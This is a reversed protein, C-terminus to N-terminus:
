GILRRLNSQYQNPDLVAKDVELPRGVIIGAHSRFSNLYGSVSKDIVVKRYNRSAHMFRAVKDNTRITIGVHSCFGGHGGTVIGIIDGDQLKPEIKSVQSKPIYHVPLRAVYDEWKKMPARLEPNERLYRYHKWLVTMESIKRGTIRQAYGLERTIDTANGRAENEFFWEALYHIRDLYCSSCNGGRYRTWQIERLLDEQSYQARPRMIMRSLGLTTEFFTWCDLGEFNVSPSEIHDDIELTYNVYPTGHLERAFLIMRSSVPYNKWNERVAKAVIKDFKDKGKFITSMPLTRPEAMLDPSSLMVGPVGMMGLALSRRRTMKKM